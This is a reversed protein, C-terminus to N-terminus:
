TAGAVGPFKSIMVSTRWSNSGNRWAGRTKLQTRGIRLLLHEMEPASKLHREANRGATVRLMLIPTIGRARSSISRAVNIPSRM